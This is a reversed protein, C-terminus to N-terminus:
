AKNSHSAALNYPRGLPVFSSLFAVNGSKDGPGGWCVPVFHSTFSFM